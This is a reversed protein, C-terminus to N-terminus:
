HGSQQLAEEILELSAAICAEGHAAPGEQSATACAAAAAVELLGTLAVGARGLARRSGRGARSATEQAM